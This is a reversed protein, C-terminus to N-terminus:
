PLRHREQTIQLLEGAIPAVDERTRAATARERGVRQFDRELAKAILVNMARM